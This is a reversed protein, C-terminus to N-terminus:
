RVECEAPRLPTCSPLFISLELKAGDEVELVAVVERGGEAARVSFNGEGGGVSSAGSNNREQVQQLEYAILSPSERAATYGEVASSFVKDRLGSFWCRAGTPLSRLAASFLILACSVDKGSGIMPRGLSSLQLAISSSDLANQSREEKAASSSPQLILSSSSGNPQYKSLPLLPTLANLLHSPLESLERLAHSLMLTGSEESPYSNLQSLVLSWATLFSTLSFNTDRGVNGEMEERAEEIEDLAEDLSYPIVLCSALTGRVGCKSTLFLEESGELSDFEPYMSDEGNIPDSTPSCIKSLLLSNPDLITMFAVDDLPSPNLTLSLLSDLADVGIAQSKDFEDHSLCARYVWSGRTSHLSPISGGRLGGVSSAYLEHLFTHLTPHRSWNYGGEDDESAIATLRSISGLLLIIKLQHENIEDFKPGQPNEDRTLLIRSLRAASLAGEEWGKIKIASKLSETLLPLCPHGRLLGKERLRSLLQISLLGSPFDQSPVQSSPTSSLIASAAKRIAFSLSTVHAQIHTVTEEFVRVADRIFQEDDILAKNGTQKPVLYHCAAAELDLVLSQAHGALSSDPMVDPQLRRSAAIAAHRVAQAQHKVLAVLAPAEENSISEVVQKNDALPPPLPFCSLAARLVHISLWSPEVVVMPLRKSSNMWFTSASSIAAPSSSSLKLRLLPSTLRLVESHVRALSELSSAPASSTQYSPLISREFYSSIISNCGPDSTLTKLAYVLATITSPSTLHDLAELLTERAREDEEGHCISLFSSLVSEVLSTDLLANDPHDVALHSIVYELLWSRGHSFVSSGIYIYLNVALSCILGGGPGRATAFITDLYTSQSEISKLAKYVSAVKWAILSPDYSYLPVLAAISKTVSSVLDHAISLMGTQNFAKLALALLHGNNWIKAAM